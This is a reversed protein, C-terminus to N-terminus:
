RTLVADIWRRLGTTLEDVQLKGDPPVEANQWLHNALAEECLWLWFHEADPVNECDAHAKVLEIFYGPLVVECRAEGQPGRVWFCHRIAGGSEREAGNSSTIRFGNISAASLPASPRAGEDRSTATQPNELAAQVAGRLAETTFPKRLFDTAGAKMAAAALDITGFATIMVVRALSNRKRMEALVQLGDMGPMRQDLLVVDWDSGTAFKALGEIGDAATEAEHGAAKLAIRVMLRINNEDDIVLVRAM